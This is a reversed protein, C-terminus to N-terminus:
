DVRYTLILGLGYDPSGDSLGATGFATWSLREGLPGSLGAFLEHADDIFRTPAGTYDYSAIVFLDGVAVSGGVSTVWNDRLDFEETDGLFRYGVMAFPIVRGIPYSVDVAVAVDTEGTGLRKDEDSTPLKLRLSLDVLFDRTAEAPLTYAAGLTLDGVGARRRREGPAEPDIVIPGMEPGGFVIGLSEISVYPLTASFRLDGTAYRASFPVILVETDQPATFDGVSYSFGTSLSLSSTDAREQAAATGACVFCLSAALALPRAPRRQAPMAPDAAAPM